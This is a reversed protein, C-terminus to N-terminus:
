LEYHGSGNQERYLKKALVKKRISNMVKVFENCDFEYNVFKKHAPGTNGGKVEVVKLM